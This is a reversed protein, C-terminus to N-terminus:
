FEPYLTLPLAQITLLLQSGKWQIMSPMVLESADRSWYADSSTPTFKLGFLSLLIRNLFLDIHILILDM